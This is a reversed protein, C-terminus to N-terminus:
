CRDINTRAAFMDLLHVLLVRFRQCAFDGHLVHDFIVLRRGKRGLLTVLTVHGDTMRGFVIVVVLLLRLDNSALELLDLVEVGLANVKELVADKLLFSVDVPQGLRLFLPM